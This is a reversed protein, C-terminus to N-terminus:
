SKNYNHTRQKYQHRANQAVWITSSLVLGMGGEKLRDRSVTIISYTDVGLSFVQSRVLVLVTAFQASTTPTRSWDVRQHCESLASQSLVHFASNRVLADKAHIAVLFCKIAHSKCWHSVNLNEVFMVSLQNWVQHHSSSSMEVSDAVKLSMRSVHRVLTTHSLTVNLVSTREVLMVDSETTLWIDQLKM